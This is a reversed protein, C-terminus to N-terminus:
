LARWAALLGFLHVLGVGLCIASSWYWFPTAPEPVSALAMPVVALGRLLYITTITCLAPKLLPWAGFVGAGSLAYGAWLALVGAIGATLVAPYARGAEAMRAMGEGAGFFRYWAPGGFIVAVHLLAAAANLGAAFLLWPQPGSTTPSSILPM